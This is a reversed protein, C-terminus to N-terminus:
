YAAQKEKLAWCHWTQISLPVSVTDSRFSSVLSSIEGWRTFFGTLRKPMYSFGFLTLIVGGLISPDSFLYSVLPLCTTLTHKPLAKILPAPYDGPLDASVEYLSCGPVRGLRPEAQASEMKSSRERGWRCFPSLEKHIFILIHSSLRKDKM